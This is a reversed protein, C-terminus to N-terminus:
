IFWHDFVSSLISSTIHRNSSDMSMKCKCCEHKLLIIKKFQVTYKLVVWMISLVHVCVCLSLSVCVCVYVAKHSIDLTVGSVLCLMIKGIM